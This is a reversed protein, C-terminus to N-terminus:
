RALLVKGLPAKTSEAESGTKREERCSAVTASISGYTEKSFVRECAAAGNTIPQKTPNTKFLAEAANENDRPNAQQRQNM